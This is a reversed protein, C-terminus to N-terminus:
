NELVVFVFHANTKIKCLSKANINKKLNSNKISFNFAVASVKM